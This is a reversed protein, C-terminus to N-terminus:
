RDVPSSLDKLMSLASLTDEDALNPTVPNINLKPILAHGEATLGM